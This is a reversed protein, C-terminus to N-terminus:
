GNVEEKTDVDGGAGIGVTNDVPLAFLVGGAETKLGVSESLAQMIATKQERKSLILLIEQENQLSIGIFQEAKTNGLSRARLVTGGVAGASRAAEMAEDVNGAAVAAVILDYKRKSDTMRTSGDFTKNTAAGLLGGAVIESVASLPMTFSIGKGVLYLSMKTQIERLIVSEDCEPIIAFVVSKGRAGIGLYDLVSTRATGEGPTTLNLSLSCESIIECIQKGDGKNVISVLLKVRSNQKNRPTRRVSGIPKKVTKKTETAM